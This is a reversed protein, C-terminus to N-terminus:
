EAADDLGSKRQEELLGLGIAMAKHVRALLEGDQAIKQEAREARGTAATLKSELEGRTAAAEALQAELAEIKARAEGLAGETQALQGRTQELTSETDSLKRGLVALERSHEEAQASMAAAHE